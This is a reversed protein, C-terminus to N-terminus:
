TPFNPLIVQLAIHYNNLLNNQGMVFSHMHKRRAAPTSNLAALASVLAGMVLAHGRWLEHYLFPSGVVWILFHCPELAFQACLSDWSHSQWISSQIGYKQHLNQFLLSTEWTWLTTFWRNVNALFHEFPRWKCMLFFVKMIGIEDTLVTCSHFNHFMFDSSIM